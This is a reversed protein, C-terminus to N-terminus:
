GSDVATAPTVVTMSRFGQRIPTRRLEVRVGPALRRFARDPVDWLTLVDTTGDDLGVYNYSASYEGTSPVHETYVVEVTEVVPPRLFDRALRWTDRFIYLSGAAVGAFVVPVVVWSLHFSGIRVLDTFLVLAASFPAGVCVAIARAVIASRPERWGDRHDEQVTVPRWSGTAPSWVSERDPEHFVAFPAPVEDATAAWHGGLARGRATLRHRALPGALAGLGWGLLLALVLYTVLAYTPVRGAVSLALLVFPVAATLRLALRVARPSRVVFLGSHVAEDTVAKTFAAWLTATADAGSVTFAPLPALDRALHALVLREYATLTGDAARRLRVWAVGSEVPLDVYGRAALDLLTATLASRPLERPHRLRAGLAPSGPPRSGDAGAPPPPVPRTATRLAILCALWLLLGIGAAAGIRGDV